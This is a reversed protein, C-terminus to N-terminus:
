RTCVLPQQAAISTPDIERAAVLEREAADCHGAGALASALSHRIGAAVAPPATSPIARAARDCFPLAEASRGLRALIYCHNNLVLYHEPELELVKVSILLAGELDDTKELVVARSALQMWDSVPLAIFAARASLFQSDGAKKLAPLVMGFMMASSHAGTPIKERVVAPLTPAGNFIDLALHAQKLADADRRAYTYTAARAAHVDATSYLDSGFADNEDFLRLAESFDNRAAAVRALNIISLRWLTSGRPSADACAQYSVNGNADLVCASPIPEDPARAFAAPCWAAVCLAGAILVKM